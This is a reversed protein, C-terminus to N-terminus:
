MGQQIAATEAITTMRAIREAKSIKPAKVKKVGRVSSTPTVSVPLQLAKEDSPVPIASAQEDVTQVVTRSSTHSSDLVDQSRQEVGPPPNSSMVITSPSDDGGHVSDSKSDEATSPNTSRARWLAWNRHLEDCLGPAYGPTATGTDCGPDGSRHAALAFVFERSREYRFSRHVHHRRFTYGVLM